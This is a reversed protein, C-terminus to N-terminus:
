GVKRVSFLRGLHLDYTQAVSALAAIEEPETALMEIGVVENCDDVDVNLEGGAYSETRAITRESFRLYVPGKGGGEVAMLEKTM